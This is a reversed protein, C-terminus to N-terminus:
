LVVLYPATPPVAVVQEEGEGEEEQQKGEADKVDAAVETLKEATVVGVFSEYAAACVEEETKMQLVMQVVEKRSEGAVQKHTEAAEVEPTDM